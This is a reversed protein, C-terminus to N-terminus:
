QAVRTLRFNLFQSGVTGGNRNRVEYTTTLPVSRSWSLIIVLAVMRRRVRCIVNSLRAAVSGGSWVVFSMLV